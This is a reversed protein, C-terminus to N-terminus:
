SSRGVGDVRLGATLAGSAETWRSIVGRRWILCGFLALGLAAPFALGAVAAATTWFALSLISSDLLGPASRTPTWWGCSWLLLAVALSSSLAWGAYNTWPVGYYAGGGEWVWFGLHAAGPDLVGDFAILLLTARLVWRLRGQASTDKRWRETAAVAGLVLPTWSVPLTLPVLGTVMPGLNDSYHFDGYPLGTTVGTLEVAFGFLSIGILALAARGAGFRELFAAFAPMALLVTSVVSGFGTGPVDPFRVAFFGAVASVGCLMWLYRAPLRKM